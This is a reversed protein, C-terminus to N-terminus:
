ARPPWSSAGPRTATPKRSTRARRQSATAGSTVTVILPSGRRRCPSRSSRRSRAPCPRAPRRRGPRAAAGRGAARRRAVGGRDGDSRMYASRQINWPGANWPTVRSPGTPSSPMRPSSVVGAAGPASSSLAPWSIPSHIMSWTWSSRSAKGPAMSRISRYPGCGAAPSRSSHTTRIREIPSVITVASRSSRVASPRSQARRSPQCSRRNPVSSRVQGTNWSASRFRIASAWGPPQNRARSRQRSVAVRSSIM